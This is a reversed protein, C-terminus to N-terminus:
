ATTQGQGLIEYDSLLTVGVRETYFFKYALCVTYSDNDKLESIGLAGKEPGQGAKVFSIGDVILTNIDGKAVDNLPVSLM